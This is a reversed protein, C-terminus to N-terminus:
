CGRRQNQCDQDGAGCPRRPPMAALRKEHGAETQYKGVFAAFEANTVPRRMMEFADIRVAGNVDEYKLASVFAGAPIRVYDGTAGGVDAWAALPLLCGALGLSRLLNM